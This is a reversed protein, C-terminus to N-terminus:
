LVMDLDRLWQATVDARLQDVLNSLPSTSRSYFNQRRIFKAATDVRVIETADLLDTTRNFAVVEVSHWLEEEIQLRAYAEWIRGHWSPDKVNMEDFMKQRTEHLADRVTQIRETVYNLTYERHAAAAEEATPVKRSVTYINGIKLQVPDDSGMAPLYAYTRKLEPSGTAIVTIDDLQVWDGKRIDRVQLELIKTEPM